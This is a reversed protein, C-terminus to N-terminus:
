GENRKLSIPQLQAGSPAKDNLAYARIPHYRTLM